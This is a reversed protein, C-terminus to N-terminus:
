YGFLSSLILAIIKKVKMNGIFLKGDKDIITGIGNMLNDQLNGIM